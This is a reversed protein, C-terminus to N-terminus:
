VNSNSLTLTAIINATGVITARSESAVNVSMSAPYQMSISFGDSEDCQDDSRDEDNDDHEDDDNNYTLLVVSQNFWYLASL